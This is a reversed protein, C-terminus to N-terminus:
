APTMMQSIRVITFEAPRVAAMGLEVILMGNDLDHQTMSEGLGIKIFFAEKQTRGQLAGKKWLSGLFESIETRLRTWTAANNPEASASQLEQKICAEVWRLFRQVAIYRWENDNGALTRAGWVLVGKGPFSRIANISKGSNVNRNLAENERENLLVAPAAVNALAVNAPSKWIGKDSDTHCYVGAIYPSPPLVLLNGSEDPTGLFPFYCAGFRLHEDGVDREHHEIVEGSFAHSGYVDIIAFCNTASACHNLMARVLAAYEHRPLTTSEPIVLLTAEPCSSKIMELGYALGQEAHVPIVFCDTGANEFYNRMHAHLADGPGFASEYEPLSSVKVFKDDGNAAGYGIFAPLATPLQPIM